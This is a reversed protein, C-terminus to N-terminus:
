REPGDGASLHWEKGRRTTNLMIKFLTVPGNCFHATMRQFAIATEIGFEGLEDGKAVVM